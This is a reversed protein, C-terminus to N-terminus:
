QYADNSMYIFTGTGSITTRVSDDDGLPFPIIEYKEVQESDLNGLAWNQVYAMPAQEANFIEVAQGTELNLYGDPYAGVSALEQVKEAASELDDAFPEEATAHAIMDDTTKKQSLLNLLMYRASHNNAAFPTLGNEEFTIVADLLEEYNTPIEVNYEEFLETNVV